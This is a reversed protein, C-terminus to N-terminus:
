GDPEFLRRLFFSGPPLFKTALPSSTATPLWFLLVVDVIYLSTLTLLADQSNNFFALAACIALVPALLIMWWLVQWRSTDEGILIKAGASLFYWALTAAFAVGFVLRAGPMYADTLWTDVTQDSMFLIQNQYLWPQLFFVLFAGLVAFAAIRILESAKM